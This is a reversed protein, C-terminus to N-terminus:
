VDKEIIVISSIFNRSHSISVQVNTIGSERIKEKVSGTFIVIPKGTSHNVIEIDKYKNEIDLYELITKKILYRAGLSKIVNKKEALKLENETFFNDQLNKSFFEKIEEVSNIRTLEKYM